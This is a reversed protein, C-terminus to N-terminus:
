PIVEESPKPEPEKDVYDDVPVEWADVTDTEEDEPAFRDILADLTDWAVRRIPDSDGFGLSMIVLLTTLKM